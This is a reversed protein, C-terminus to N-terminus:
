ASPRGEDVLYQLQILLSNSRSMAITMTQRSKPLSQENMPRALQRHGPVCPPVLIRVAASGTAPMKEVAQVVSASRGPNHELMGLQRLLSPTFCNM